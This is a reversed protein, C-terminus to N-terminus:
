VLPLSRRPTGPPPPDEPPPPPPPTQPWGHRQASAAITAHLLSPGRSHSLVRPGLREAARQLLAAISAESPAGFWTAPVTFRLREHAPLRDPLPILGAKVPDAGLPARRMLHFPTLAASVIRGRTLADDLFDITAAMEAATEDPYGLICLARVRIGAAAADDLMREVLDPRVGKDMLDRVRPVASELGLWLEELGAAAAAALLERTFGPEFRARASYRVPFPLDRLLATLDRIQRPTLLDDRFRFFAAGLQRHAAVLAPAITAAPSTRYGQQHATIACFTCRGWACGRSLRLDLVPHPYPYISPDVLSLDLAGFESLRESGRAPVTRLNWRPAILSPVSEPPREGRLAQVISLLASEAEGVVAGDYTSFLRHEPRGPVSALDPAFDEPALVDENSGYLALFGRYGAERLLAGLALAQIIQDPHVLAVAVLVPPPEQAALAQAQARLYPLAPNRRPDLGAALAAPVHAPDVGPLTLGYLDYSAGYAESIQACAQTLGDSAADYRAPDLYTEPRRLAAFSAGGDPGGPGLLSAALGAGLDLCRVSVGRARLFSGTYLLDAPVAAYYWQPPFVLVVQAAETTSKM